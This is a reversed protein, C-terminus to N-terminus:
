LIFMLGIMILIIVIMCGCGDPSNYPEYLNNDNKM